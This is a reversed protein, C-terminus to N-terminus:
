LVTRPPEPSRDPLTWHSPPRFDCWTGDFPFAGAEALRAVAAGEARIATAEEASWYSPHGTKEEFSREDKWKWGRDPAVEIDLEHDIVDIEGGHHVRRELNVYWGRFRHGRLRGRRGFFWFVAYGAGAPQHILASGLPWRGAVAPYGGAPRERPPIDRLHAGQPLETRWMPTGTELWVLQGGDTREVLRVPVSSSLHGGIFLNWHLIEGSPGSAPRRGPRGTM